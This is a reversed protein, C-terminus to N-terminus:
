LVRVGLADDQDALDTAPSLFTSSLVQLLVVATGVGLRDHGENSANCGRRTPPHAM